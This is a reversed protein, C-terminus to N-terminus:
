KSSKEDKKKFLGSIANVGSNFLNGLTNGIGQAMIDGKKSPDVYDSDKVSKSDVRKYQGNADVEYYNGDMDTYYTKKGSSTTGSGGADAILMMKKADTESLGAQKLIDASPMQGNQLINMAYEYAYKKEDSMANYEFEADWQRRSEAFNQEYQRKQEDFDRQDTAQQWKFQMDKFANNIEDQQKQYDFDRQDTDKQWKFQEYRYKNDEDYQRQKEAFDREDKSKEYDFDRQDKSKEYDFDREDKSKNWDFEKERYANDTDYQRQKEGFDRQDAYRDYDRDAEKDYRDAYYGREDKWDGMTDRFRGYENQDQSSIISYQDKLGNQEDLFRQYARDHLELAKDNLQTLYQQYAQNGASQAYSNGYGGTLAAAQGQADLSAQKGKQMYQDAYNQYLADGNMSYQFKEPNTIKQLIEDLQQSYKSTYGQPKQNQVQELMQQANSVASSQQYQGNGGQQNQGNGNNEGPDGYMLDDTYQNDPKGGNQNDAFSGYQQNGAGYPNANPDTGGPGKMSTEDNGPAIYMGQGASVPAPINTSQTKKKDNYTVAM